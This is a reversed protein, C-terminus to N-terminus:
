GDDSGEQQERAIETVSRAIAWVLEEGREENGNLWDRLKTEAELESWSCKQLSYHFLKRAAVGGDNTTEPHSITHLISKAYGTANVCLEGDIEAIEPRDATTMMGEAQWYNWSKEPVQAKMYDQMAPSIYLGGEGNNAGADYLVDVGPTLGQESAEAYINSVSVMELAEKTSLGQRKYAALCRDFDAETTGALTVIQIQRQPGFGKHEAM